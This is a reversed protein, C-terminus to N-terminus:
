MQRTQNSPNPNSLQNKRGNQRSTNTPLLVNKSKKQLNWRRENAARTSQTKVQLNNLKQITDNFVRGFSNKMQKLDEKTARGRHVNRMELNLAQRMQKILDTYIRMEQKTKEDGLRSRVAGYVQAGMRNMTNGLVGPKRTYPQSNNSQKTRGFGFM